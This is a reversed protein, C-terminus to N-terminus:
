SGSLPCLHSMVHNRVEENPALDEIAKLIQQQKTVDPTDLLDYPILYTLWDEPQHERFSGDHADLVGNEFGILHSNSDLPPSTDYLRQVMEEIVVERECINGLDREIEKLRGKQENTSYTDQLKRYVPRLEQVILDDPGSCKKWYKGTFYLWQKGTTHYVYRKDILAVLLLSIDYTAGSLSDYCLKRLEESEYIDHPFAEFGGFDVTESVPARNINIQINFIVEQHGEALPTRWRM